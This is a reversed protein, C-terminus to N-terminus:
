KNVYLYHTSIPIERGEQDQDDFAIDAECEGKAYCGHIYQELNYEKVVLEAIHKGGASWVIIKTNKMQSLGKILNIVTENPIGNHVITGNTDFAITIM